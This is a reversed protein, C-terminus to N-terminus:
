SYTLPVLQGSVFELRRLHTMGGRNVADWTSALGRELVTRDSRISDWLSRRCMTMPRLSM